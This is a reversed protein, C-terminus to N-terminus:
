RCFSGGWDPGKRVKSVSYTLALRGVQKDTQRNTQKNTRTRNILENKKGEKRGEKAIGGDM